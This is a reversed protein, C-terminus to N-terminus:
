FRSAGRDHHPIEQGHRHQMRHKLQRDVKRLRRQLAYVLRELHHKEHLISRTSRRSHGDQWHPRGRVDQRRPGYGTIQDRDRRHDAHWRRSRDDGHHHTDCPEVRRNGLSEQNKDARRFGMMRRSNKMERMFKNEKDNIYLKKKKDM